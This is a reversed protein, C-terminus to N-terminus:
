KAAAMPAARTMEATGREGAPRARLLSDAIM